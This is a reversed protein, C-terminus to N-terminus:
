KSGNSESGANFWSRRSSSPPQQLHLQAPADFHQDAGVALHAELQAVRLQSALQDLQGVLRRLLRQQEDAQRAGARTEGLASRSLAARCASSRSPSAPLAGRLAIASLSPSCADTSTRSSTCSTSWSPTGTPRRSGRHGDLDRVFCGYYPEAYHPRLGPPRGFAPAPRAADYFAHVAQKDPRRCFHTGNGVNAPQGDIPTRVWFEPYERNWAVAGPHELSAQLRPRWTLKDYFAM